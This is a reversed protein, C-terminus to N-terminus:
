TKLMISQLAYDLLLQLSYLLCEVAERASINRKTIAEPKGKCGPSVRLVRSMCITPRCNVEETLDGGAVIIRHPMMIAYYLQLIPEHDPRNAYVGLVVNEVGM